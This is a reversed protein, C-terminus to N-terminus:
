PIVLKQGSKILAPNNGIISKNANYIKTYQAGSGYFKKAINWLCDGSQVTYTNAVKALNPRATTPVAAAKKAIQIIERIIITPFEKFSIDFYIDGPEGGREEYNFSRITVPMNINIGTIILRCPWKSKRWREITAVADAPVPIEQYECLFSDYDRPFLSSFAVEILKNDGIVTAEGGKVVNFDNFDTGGGSIKYDPPNVPFTLKEAFNNYSLQFIM